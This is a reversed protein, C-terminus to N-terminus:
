PMWQRLNRMYLYVYDYCSYDDIFTIFYGEKKLYNVDFPGCIDTHVIELLQTSRTAVKKTHKTQKEKICDVCINLNTFDLDPLIENKILREMRERSIHDLRKDWLFVSRENVLSRKSGVNHHM